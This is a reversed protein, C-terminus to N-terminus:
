TNGLDLLHLNIALLLTCCAIHKLLISLCITLFPHTPCCEVYLAALVGILSHSTASSSLVCVRHLSSCLCECLSPCVSGMSRPVYLAVLVAHWSLVRQSDDAVHEHQWLLIPLASPSAMAIWVTIVIPGVAVYLCCIFLCVCSRHMLKVLVWKLVQRQFQKRCPSLGTTYKTNVFM